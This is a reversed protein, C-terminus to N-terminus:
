RQDSAPDVDDVYIYDWGIEVAAIYFERVTRSENAEGDSACVLLLLPPVLLLLLTAKTASPAGTLDM